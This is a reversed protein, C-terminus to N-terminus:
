RSISSSQYKTTMLQGQGVIENGLLDEETEAVVMSNCLGQEM